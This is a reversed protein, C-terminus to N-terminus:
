LLIFIKNDARSYRQRGSGAKGSIGILNPTYKNIEKNM